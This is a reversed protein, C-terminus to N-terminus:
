VTSGTRNWYNQLINLYRKAYLLPNKYLYIYQKWTTALPIYEKRHDIIKQLFGLVREKSVYNNPQDNLFFPAKAYEMYLKDNQDLEIIRNIVADMSDFEHCNIFSASNFENSILPDGWYIPLADVLKPEYVKETVYGPYSENEFSIVFKYDKMFEIKDAVPGGINNLYRGGSDVAKYNSLMRFFDNRISTEPNSVVFCCFKSKHNLLDDPVQRNLLLPYDNYLVYLPLRLNRDDKSHDFSLAFDCENFDPRINEGTYFIRICKYRHFTKKRVDKLGLYSYFLIEPNEPDLVLQYRESLLNWFYNDQMDFSKWFDAFYIRLTEM